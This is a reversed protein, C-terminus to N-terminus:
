GATLRRIEEDAYGLEGLVARTHEGLAPIPDMRPTFGSLNFPPKLAAIPGASSGVEAWRGRAKAQPHNWFEELDNLRANAIEARELRDVVQASSLTSFVQDIRAHM